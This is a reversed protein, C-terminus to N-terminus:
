QLLIHYEYNLNLQSVFLSEDDFSCASAAGPLLIKLIFITLYSRLFPLLSFEFTMTILRLENLRAVSRPSLTAWDVATLALGALRVEEILRMKPVSMELM